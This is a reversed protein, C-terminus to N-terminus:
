NGMGCTFLFSITKENGKGVTVRFYQRFYKDLDRMQHLLYERLYANFIRQFYKDSHNMQHMSYERFYEDFDSMQHMLYERLYEDLKSTQENSMQKDSM